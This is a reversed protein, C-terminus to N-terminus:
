FAATILTMNHFENHWKGDRRMVPCLEGCTYSFVYPLFNNLEGHITEVETTYNLGLTFNRSICSCLYFFDPSMLRMLGCARIASERIDSVDLSGFGLTTNEPATGGIIIDGEPNQAFIVRVVPPRGDHRDLFLPITHTGSIQGDHALGLSELYETVPLGNVKKIVNGASETVIAKKRITKKDSVPFCYFRPTINGEILLLALRDSFTEGNHIIRPNRLNTSYDAAMGGFLPLRDSVDDIIRVLDEGLPSFSLPPTYAIALKPRNHLLGEAAVYTNTISQTLNGPNLPESLAVSFNIESSTLVCVTLLINDMLGLSSSHLLTNIGIVPFPLRECIAAVVGSDMFVNNTHIIAVSNKKLSRTLDLQYLVETLAKEPDEVEVTHALIM